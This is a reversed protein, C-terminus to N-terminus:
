AKFAVEQLRSPWTYNAEGEKHMICQLIARVTQVSREAQGDGEPNYPSSRWKEIGLETCLANVIEGDINRAQDSVAIKSNGHGYIWQSILADKITSAEPNKM